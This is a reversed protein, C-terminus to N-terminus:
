RPVRPVPSTISSPPNFAGGYGPCKLSDPSSRAFGIRYQVIVGAQRITGATSHNSVTSLLIDLTVDPRVVMPFHSPNIQLEGDRDPLLEGPPSYTSQTEVASERLALQNEEGPRIAVVNQNSTLAGEDWQLQHRL